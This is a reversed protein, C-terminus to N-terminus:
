RGISCKDQKGADGEQDPRIKSSWYAKLGDLEVVAASM